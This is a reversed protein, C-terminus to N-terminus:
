IENEKAFSNEIRMNSVKRGSPFKKKNKYPSGVSQKAKSRGTLGLSDNM